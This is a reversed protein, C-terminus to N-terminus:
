PDLLLSLAARHGSSAAAVKRVEGVGLGSLRVSFPENDDPEYYCEHPAETTIVIPSCRKLCFCAVTIPVPSHGIEKALDDVQDLLWGFIDMPEWGVAALGGGFRRKIRWKAVPWDGQELFRPLFPLKDLQQCGSIPKPFSSEANEGLM